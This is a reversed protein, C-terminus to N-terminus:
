AGTNNDKFLYKKRKNKCVQNKNKFVQKKNKFFGTFNSFANFKFINRALFKM